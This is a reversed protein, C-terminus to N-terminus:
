ITLTFHKANGLFIDNQGYKELIDHIIQGHSLIGINLSNTENILKIAENVRIQYSEEDEKCLINKIKETFLESKIITNYKIKSFEFTKLTRKLPSIILVDFTFDLSSAQQIGKETIDTDVPCISSCQNANWDSEAHRIFTIQRSM